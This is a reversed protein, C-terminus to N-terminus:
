HSFLGHQFEHEPPTTFMPPSPKQHLVLYRSNFYVAAYHQAYYLFDHVVVEFHTGFIFGLVECSQVGSCFPLEFTLM